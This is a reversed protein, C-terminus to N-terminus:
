ANQAASSIPSAMVSARKPRMPTRAPKTPEEALLPLADTDALITGDPAMRGWQGSATLSPHGGERWSAESRAGPDHAARCKGTPLVIANRCVAHLLHVPDLRFQVSHSVTRIGGVGPEACLPRDGSGMGGFRRRIGHRIQGRLLKLCDAARSSQRQIEM